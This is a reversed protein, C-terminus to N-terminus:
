FRSSQHMIVETWADAAMRAVHGTMYKRTAQNMRPIDRWDELPVDGVGHPVNFRFYKVDKFFPHSELTKAERAFEEATEEADLAIRKITEVLELETSGMTHLAQQGTGISVISGVHFGSAPNWISKAEDVLARVPNNMGLGGDVYEVEIGSHDVITIPDFILPAASTARLAEWISCNAAPEEGHYNRLRFQSETTKETVCVFRDYTLVIIMGLLTPAKCKVPRSAM